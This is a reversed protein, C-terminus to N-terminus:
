TSEFYNIADSISQIWGVLLFATLIQLIGRLFLEKTRNKNKCTNGWGIAAIVTGIGPFFINLFLIIYYMRINYYLKMSRKKFKLSECDIVIINSNLKKSKKNNTNSINKLTNKYFLYKKMLYEKKVDRVHGGTFHMTGDLGKLCCCCSLCLLNTFNNFNDNINPQRKEREREKIEKALIRLDIEIENLRSSKIENPNTKM